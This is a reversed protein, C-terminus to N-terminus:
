YPDFDHATKNNTMRKKLDRKVSIQSGIFYVNLMIDHVNPWINHNGAKKKGCYCLFHSILTMSTLSFLRCGCQSDKCTAGFSLLQVLYKERKSWSVVHFLVSQPYVYQHLTNRPSWPSQYMGHSLHTVPTLFAGSAVWSHHFYPNKNTKAVLLLLYWCTFIDKVFWLIYCPCTQKGPTLGPPPWTNCNLFWDYSLVLHMLHKLMGAWWVHMMLMQSLAEVEELSFSNAMLARLGKWTSGSPRRQQQYQTDEIPGSRVRDSNFILVTINRSFSFLGIQQYQLVTTVATKLILFM